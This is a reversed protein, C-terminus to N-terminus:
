EFLRKQMDSFDKKVEEPSIIKIKGGFQFVWGFFTPSICVSTTVVFSADDLKDVHVDEGFYDIVIKMMENSCKLKIEVEKGDFMKFVKTAYKSIDFDNPCPVSPNELLEVKAM